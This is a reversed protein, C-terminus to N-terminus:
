SRLIYWIMGLGYKIAKLKKDSGTKSVGVRKKFTIPVEVIRLDNEIAVSTTFLGITTSNAGSVLEETGEYMFQDIIKKLAEQRFCRYVCGVDNVHIVGLHELNFYKIQLLKAIFMNGWAMFTGIQNGKESLVQIM